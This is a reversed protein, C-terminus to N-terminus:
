LIVERSVSCVGCGTQAGGARLMVTSGSSANIFRQRHMSARPLQAGRPQPPSTCAQAAERARESVSEQRARAGKKGESTRDRKSAREGARRESASKRVCGRASSPAHLPVKNAYLPVQEGKKYKTSQAAGPSPLLLALLVAAGAASQAGRGWM